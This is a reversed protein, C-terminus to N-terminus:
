ALREVFDTAGDVFKSEVWRPPSRQIAIRGGFTGFVKQM